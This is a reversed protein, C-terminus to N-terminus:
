FKVHMILVKVLIPYHCLGVNLMQIELPTTARPCLKERPGIKPLGADKKGNQLSKRHNGRRIRYIKIPSRSSYDWCIWFSTM